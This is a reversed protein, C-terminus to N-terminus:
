PSMWSTDSASRWRLSSMLRGSAATASSNTNPRTTAAPDRHHHPPPADEHRQGRDDEDCRHCGHADEHEVERGQQTEPQTDVVRQEHDAAEPLLQLAPHRGRVPTPRPTDPRPPWTAVAPRATEKLPRVTMTPREPDNSNSNMTSRDTPMAPAM